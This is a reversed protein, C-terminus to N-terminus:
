DNCIYVKNVGVEELKKICPECCHSHGYLYLKPNQVKSYKKLERIAVAEAHNSYLACGPCIWYLTHNKIKFIKRLCNNKHWNIFWKWKITAQNSGFCIPGWDGYIVAGISRRKDTATNSAEKALRIGLETEKVKIYEMYNSEQVEMVEM